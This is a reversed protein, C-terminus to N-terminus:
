QLSRFPNRLEMLGHVIPAAIVTILLLVGLRTATANVFGLFPFHWL